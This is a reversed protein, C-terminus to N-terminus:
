RAAHARIRARVREIVPQLQSDFYETAFQADWVAGHSDRTCRRCVRYVVDGPLRVLRLGAGAPARSEFDAWDDLKYYSDGEYLFVVGPFKARQALQGIEQFRRTQTETSHPLRGHCTPAFVVVGGVDPYRFAAAQLSGWGGCSQGTLIINALPVKQQRNFFEIAAEIYSAHHVADLRSTNRVQSYIVVDPNRRGAMEVIPPVRSQYTGATDSSFGHNFIILIARARADAAPLERGMFAGEVPFACAGFGLAILPLLARAFSPTM